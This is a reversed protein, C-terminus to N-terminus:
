AVHGALRMGHSKNMRIISPLSYLNHLEENYLIRRRGTVEDKINNTYVCPKFTFYHCQENYIIKIFTNCIKWM